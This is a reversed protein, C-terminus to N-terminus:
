SAFLDVIIFACRREAVRFVLCHLPIIRTNPAFDLVPLVHRLVRQLAVHVAIVVRVIEHLTEIPADLTIQAVQGLVLLKDNLALAFFSNILTAHLINRWYLATLHRNVRIIVLIMSILPLPGTRHLHPLAIALSALDLVRGGLTFPDVEHAGDFFLSGEIRLQQELLHTLLVIQCLSFHLLKFVLRVSQLIAPIRCDHHAFLHDLMASLLLVDNLLPDLVISGNCLSVPVHCSFDEVLVVRIARILFLRVNGLLVLVHEECVIDVLILLLKAEVTGLGLLRLHFFHEGERM